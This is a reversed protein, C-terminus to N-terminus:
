QPLDSPNIFWLQSITLSNFIAHMIIPTMISGTREYSLTLLIALLFLPVSAALSVHILSFLISVLIMSALFGMYRKAVQYLYGRFILEETVPAIVAALLTLLIRDTVSDTHVFIDIVEQAKIPVQVLYTLFFNWLGSAVLLVPLGALLYGTSIKLVSGAGAQDM